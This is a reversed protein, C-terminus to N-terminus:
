RKFWKHLPCEPDIERECICESMLAATHDRDFHQTGRAISDGLAKAARGLNSASLRLAAKREETMDAM